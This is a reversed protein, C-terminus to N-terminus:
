PRRRRGRTLNGANQRVFGDGIVLFDTIKTPNFQPTAGLAAVMAMAEARLISLGGTFAVEQGFFPQDPDADPHASPPHPRGKM